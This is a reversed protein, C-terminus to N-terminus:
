WGAAIIRDAEMVDPLFLKQYAREVAGKEERSFGIFALSLTPDHRAADLIKRVTEFELKTLTM